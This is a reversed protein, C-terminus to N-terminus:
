AVDSRRDTFREHGQRSASSVCWRCQWWARCSGEEHWVVGALLVCLRPLKDYLEAGYGKPESSRGERWGCHGAQTPRMTRDNTQHIRCRVHKSARGIACLGHTECAAVDSGGEVVFLPGPWTYWRPTYFVGTSGGMNTRKSGNSYRRVYGIVRGDSDRSPWSSYEENEWEDWGIGVRLRELSDVSVNLQDAVECRKDHAQPHEFMLRAEETWDLKKKIKKKPAPPLPDELVHVWGGSEIAKESEVRMCKVASGDTTRTCYDGKGCVPCPEARTVRKWQWRDIM